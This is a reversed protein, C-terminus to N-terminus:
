PPKLQHYPDTRLAQESLAAQSVGCSEAARGFNRERAVAVAYELDRLSLASLQAPLMRFM